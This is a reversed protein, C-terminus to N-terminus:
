KGEKKDQHAIFLAVLWEALQDLRWQTLDNLSSDTIYNNGKRIEHKIRERLEDELTSM